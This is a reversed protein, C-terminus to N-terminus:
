YNSCVWFTIIRQLCLLSKESRWRSINCIDLCSSFNCQRGRSLSSQWVNETHWVVQGVTPLGVRALGQLWSPEHTERLDIEKDPTYYLQPCKWVWCHCVEMNVTNPPRPVYVPGDSTQDLHIMSTWTWRNPQLYWAEDFNAHHCTKVIGLNLDLYTSKQDTVTYGLFISTFNHQDLKCQRSGTRKVYVWSGFTKLHTVNPKPGYWGEYPAKNTASHVLRNHLYM